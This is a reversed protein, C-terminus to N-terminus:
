LPPSFELMLILSFLGFIMGLIFDSDIQESPRVGDMYEFKHHSFWRFAFVITPIAFIVGLAFM